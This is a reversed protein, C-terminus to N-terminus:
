LRFDAQIGKFADTTEGDIELGAYGGGCSPKLGEVHQFELTTYPTELAMRPERRGRPDSDPPTTLRFLGLFLPHLRLRHGASHVLPASGARDCKTVRPRSIAPACPSRAWARANGGLPLTPDGANPPRNGEFHHQLLEIGFGEPDRFHCMYGIDSSSIRPASGSGPKASLQAHAIDVNPCPSASKGTATLQRMGTPHGARSCSSIRMKARCVGRAM